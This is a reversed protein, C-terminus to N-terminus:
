IYRCQFTSKSYLIIISSIRSISGLYILNSRWCKSFLIDMWFRVRCKIYTLTSDGFGVNNVIMGYNHLTKYIIFLKLQVMCLM